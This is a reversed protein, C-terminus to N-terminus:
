PAVPGDAAAALARLERPVVEMVARQWAETATALAEPYAELVASLVAWLGDLIARQAGAFAQGQGEAVRVRREEVGARLAAVAHSELRKAAEAYMVYAIHPKAEETTGRDDGGDKVRTVGWTLEDDGLLRVRERWYDVEGATWRVLELLAESPDIDRRAAFLAVAQRAERERGRREAAALARPSRGGHLGCVRQDALPWQGCPLGRRNHGACRDHPQGCKPCTMPDPHTTM